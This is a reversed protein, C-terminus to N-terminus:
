AAKAADMAARDLARLHRKRAETIAAVLEAATYTEAWALVEEVARRYAGATRPTEGGAAVCAYGVSVGGHSWARIPQGDLTTLRESIPHAETCGCSCRAAEAYVADRAAWQARTMDGVTLRPARDAHYLSRGYRLLGHSLSAYATDYDPHMTM